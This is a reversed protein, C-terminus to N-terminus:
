NETCKIFTKLNLPPLAVPEIQWRCSHVIGDVGEKAGQLAGKNNTTQLKM